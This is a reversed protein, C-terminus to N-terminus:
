SWPNEAAANSGAVRGTFMCEALHTGGSSVWGWFGGMEGASYLRPIPNQYPDVIQCEINRRPGCALNTTSPWIKMAYFPPGNIAVLSAPNTLFQSDAGAACDANYATLTAQLQTGTMKGGNDPDAAILAALASVSSASLIWGSAVEAQNNSSWTYGSYNVFWSSTGGVGPGTSAKYTTSMLPGKGLATSDMIAWCPISDWDLTTPDFCFSVNEENAFGGVPGNVATGMNFRNGYKNVAIGKVSVPAVGYTSPDTGPVVFAGYSPFIANMHWLDAGVAQAMKIGDGTSGPCGTGYLPAFGWFQKQMDHNFQMSGCALVVGRNAQINLIESANALAQVGLIEGTTPDQILSTAPTSYLINIPRAAVAASFIKWIGGDGTSGIPYGNTGPLAGPLARAFTHYASSGAAAPFSSSGGATGIYGGLNQAWALNDVFGQAQAWFVDIDEVSGCAVAQLYAAGNVIDPTVATSTIDSPVFFQSGSVKSSGGQLAEPLKELVLVNAGADNAAVAAALGALGTGVVVVDATESWSTPVPAPSSRMAGRTARIIEAAREHVDVDTGVSALKPSITSAAIATGGVAAAGLAGGLFGRRSIKTNTVGKKDSDM